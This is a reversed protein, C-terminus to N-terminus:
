SCDAQARRLDISRRTERKLFLTVMSGHPTQHVAVFQWGANKLLGKLDNYQEALAKQEGTIVGSDRLREVFARYDSASVKTGNAFYSYEGNAGNANLVAYECTVSVEHEARGHTATSLGIATCLILVRWFSAM